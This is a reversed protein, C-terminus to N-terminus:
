ETFKSVASTRTSSEFPRTPQPSACAGSAGSTAQVIASCKNRGATTSSSNSPEGSLIAASQSRIYAVIRTRPCEPPKMSSAILPTSIASQSRAPFSASLGTALRSVAAGFCVTGAYKLPVDPAVAV